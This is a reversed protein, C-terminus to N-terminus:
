YGHGFRPRAVNAVDLADYRPYNSMALNRRQDPTMDVGVSSGAPFCSPPKYSSDVPMAYGSEREGKEKPMTAGSKFLDAM